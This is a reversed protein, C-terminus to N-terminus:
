LAELYKARNTKKKSDETDWFEPDECRACHELWSQFNFEYRSPSIQRVKIFEARGLRRMTNESLGIGLRDLSGQSLSLWDILPRPIVRYTGGGLPVNEAICYRPLPDSERLELKKGPAAEVTVGPRAGILPQPTTLPIVTTSPNM